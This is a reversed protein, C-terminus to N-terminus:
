RQRRKRIALAGLGAVSVFWTSPEPVPSNVDIRYKQTLSAELGSNPYGYVAAGVYALFKANYTGPAVTFTYSADVANTTYDTGDLSLKGDIQTFGLQAIGNSMTATNFSSITVTSVTNVTFNLEGFSQVSSGLFNALGPGNYTIASYGFFNGEMRLQTPTNIPLTTTMRARTEWFGSLLSTTTYPADWSFLPAALTTGYLGSNHYAEGYSNTSFSTISAKACVAVAMLGWVCFHRQAVM